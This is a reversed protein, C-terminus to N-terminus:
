SAVLFMPMVPLGGHKTLNNVQQLLKLCDEPLTDQGIKFVVYHGRDASSGLSILTSDLVSVILGSCRQPSLSCAMLFQYSM